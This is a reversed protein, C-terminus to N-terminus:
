AQVKESEPASLRYRQRFAAVIERDWQKGLSQPPMGLSFADALLEGFPTAPHFETRWPKDGASFDPTSGHRGAMAMDLLELASRWPYISKFALADNVIGRALTDMDPLRALPM